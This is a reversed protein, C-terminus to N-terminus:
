EKLQVPLLVRRTSIIPKGTKRDRAGTDYEYAFALRGVMESYAEDVQWNAPKAWEDGREYQVGDHEFPKVTEYIVVEVKKAM